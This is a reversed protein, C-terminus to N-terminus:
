ENLAGECAGIFEGYKSADVESLRNAGFKNLLEKATALGKESNVKQLASLADAQPVEEVTEEKTETETEKKTEAKVEAKEEAPSQPKIPNKKKTSKKAVKKKIPKPADKTEEEVMIILGAIKEKLEAITEGTVKLEFM